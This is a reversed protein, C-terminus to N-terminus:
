TTVMLGNDIEHTGTVDEFVGGERFLNILTTKFALHCQRRLLLLDRYGLLYHGPPCFIRKGGEAESGMPDTPVSSCVALRIHLFISTGLDALTLLFILCPLLLRQVSLKQMEAGLEM